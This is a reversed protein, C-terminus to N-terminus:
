VGKITKLQKFYEERTIPAGAKILTNMIREEEPSLVIENSRKPPRNGTELKPAADKHPNRFKHPFLEKARREIESMVESASKGQAALKNGLGDAWATMDLDTQYWDNRQQWQIFEVSPSATLDPVQEVSRIKDKIEDIEDRLKEVKVFEQEELAIAKQAQLEKLAREYAAKELKANHKALMRSAEQAARAERKVEEIKDFLSKRDMFDEAPRWKKGQNKEEAEFEEKPKWGYKMAELEIETFQSEEKKSGEQTTNDKITEENM